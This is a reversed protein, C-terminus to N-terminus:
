AGALIRDVLEAKTGSTSLGAESAIAQLENVTLAELEERTQTPAAAPASAELAVPWTRTVEGVIPFEFDSTIRTNVDGGFSEGPVEVRCDGTLTPGGDVTNPVYEFPLVELDHEWLYETVSLAEDLWDQVFTGALSRTDLKRGPPITDGCLTELSDGDDSYSSNIRINTVQCSFAFESGTEGLTLTGQRVKAEIVPM